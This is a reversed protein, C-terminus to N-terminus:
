RAGSTSSCTHTRTRERLGDVIPLDFEAYNSGYEDIIMAARDMLFLSGNIRGLAVAQKETLVVLVSAPLVQRIEVKDM